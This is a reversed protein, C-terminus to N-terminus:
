ETITGAFDFQMLNTKSSGINKKQLYDEPHLPMYDLLNASVYQSTHPPGSWMESQTPTEM